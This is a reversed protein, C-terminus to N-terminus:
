GRNVVQVRRDFLVLTWDWEPRGIDLRIEGNHYDIEAPESLRETPIIKLGGVRLPVSLLLDPCDILGNIHFHKSKLLKRIPEGMKEGSAIVDEAVAASVDELVRRRLM